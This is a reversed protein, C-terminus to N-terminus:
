SQAARQQPLRAPAVHQRDRVLHAHAALNRLERPLWSEEPILFLKRQRARVGLSVRSSYASVAPSAILGGLVPLMWWLLGSGLVYVFAAWGSGLLAHAGHRRLAEGAHTQADERPPSKWQVRSGVLSRVIFEAHFMMRVPALLTSLVVELLASLALRAAGGYGAAGRLALLLVASLKPLLLLVATSGLLALAREPRWSPWYPHLQYSDIFYRPEGWAHVAMLATSLVLMLLWLAASLYAMVGSVFVGRHAPAIGRMFALRFNILNGECWRRDRKLEELLNSPVEEYSGPLDYAIWVGWGARRMLAAEVFDHSLIERSSAGRGPLRRLACHRMFPALRIIANHGWYHADGLQWFHLGATYLPGYVRTAFQQVRAHLTDRGAAVPATQIIGANPDAEMLQVLRAVCEGSMVSDADLVIMYRYCAGWRRCFDAVNGSKRKIRHRRWRYYIRAPGGLARCLRAWTDAEAERVEPDASDSLVFFDFRDAYATRALSEYTARLGAFVRAVDENCIPMVIATRADEPIPADRAAARSVLFKDAGLVHVAFGAMATWFGGSIWAFLVAFLGIIAIELADGGGYPVVTAMYSVAIATQALVLGILVVRRLLATVRWPTRPPPADQVPQRRSEGRWARPAIPTRRLPPSRHLQPANV